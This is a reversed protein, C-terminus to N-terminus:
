QNIRNFDDNWGFAEKVMSATLGKYTNNLKYNDIQEFPDPSMQKVSCGVQLKEKDVSILNNPIRDFGSNIIKIERKELKIADYIGINLINM